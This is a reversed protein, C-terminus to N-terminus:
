TSCSSSTMLAALSAAGAGNVANGAIEANGNGAELDRHLRLLTPVGPPDNGFFIDPMSM